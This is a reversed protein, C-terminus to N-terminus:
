PEAAQLKSHASPLQGLGPLAESQGCLFRLGLDDEARPFM